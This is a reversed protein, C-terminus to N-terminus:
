KKKSDLQTRNRPLQQRQHVLRWLSGCRLPVLKWCDWDFPATASSLELGTSLRRDSWRRRSRPRRSRTSISDAGGSLTPCGPGFDMPVEGTDGFCLASLHPFFQHGMRPATDGYCWTPTGGFDLGGSVAGGLGPDALLLGPWTARFVPFHWEQPLLSCPLKMTKALPNPSQERTPTIGLKNM